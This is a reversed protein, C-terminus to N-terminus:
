QIQIESRENRCGSTMIEKMRGSGVFKSTSNVKKLGRKNQIVSIQSLFLFLKGINKFHPFIVNIFRAKISNIISKLIKLKNLILHATDSIM